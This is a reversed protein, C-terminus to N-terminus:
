AGFGRAPGWVELTRSRRGNQWPTFMLDPLGVTHDTHLHTIFVRHLRRAELAPFVERRRPLPAASSERGPTSSCASAASSWRRRESRLAASRRDAHGHRAVVLKMPGQQAPALAPWTVVLALVLRLALRM